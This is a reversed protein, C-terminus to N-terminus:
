GDRISWSFRTLTRGPALGGPRLGGRVLLVPAPSREVLARRTEDLEAPLSAVLVSSREALIADPGPAVVAPEAATGTFRQLALSASALMRSADRREGTAEVGLLRLPLGHARALWAGLQLAPWEDRGGGFPVLVPAGGAFEAPSAVAVDCDAPVDLGVVLEAGQEAALRAVDAAADDSTFCAARAEVGRAVLEQRVRELAASREPLGEPAAVLEVLVLERELPALLRALWAGVAIVCGRRAPAARPEDLARDQRLIARELQQLSPGPEIGLEEVLVRRGERYRALAEAQRGSRYLALMLQRRPQERLPEADVLSELEAVLQEHRGLELDAELRRELAALRLEELRRAAPRAFPEATLGALAPGRWLALAETLLRSRRAPDATEAAEATLSEFRGLDTRGRPVDLLYGPRRTEILGAGLAKRLASVHVQLIKRVSPPARDGWLGDVLEDAAVVRGVDLALRVLLASPKGGPLAVPRGDVVAELPGLVRLETM